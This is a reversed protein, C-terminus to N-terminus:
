WVGCWVVCRVIPRVYKGLEEATRHWRGYTHICVMTRDFDICVCAVGHCRLAETLKEAEAAEMTFDSGMQEPDPLSDEKEGLRSASISPLSNIGGPRRRGGPGSPVVPAHSADYNSDISLGGGGGGLQLRGLKRATAARAKLPSSRPPSSSNVELSLGAIRRKGRQQSLTPPTSTTTAAAGGTEAASAVSSGEEGVGASSSGGAAAAAAAADESASGPVFLRLSKRGKRPSTRVAAAAFHSLFEAKEVSGRRSSM